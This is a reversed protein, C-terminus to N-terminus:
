APRKTVIHLGPTVARPTENATPEPVGRGIARIARDIHPDSVHTYRLVMELTKHGSITQITALDVGATVLNTIATHRMVHPTVKAPDLGARIVARRFPRDMRTRHGDVSLGARLAPFIWGDQDDDDRMGRERRLIDVLAPTMPQERSGAKAEQIFLRRRSFDVQDFRASLIESHRMATNLGFAVFLWCYTDQDSIAASLLADAEEDSLTIRRGEGEEDKAIKCPLAKIWKWHVGEHLMHILTTLERNITSVSAGERRRVKKYQLITFVAIKDLRQERFFPKLHLRLHMKKRPINKPPKRGEGRKLKEIYEGAATSFGLVTKRGRPLSLRGERAETRLREILQEAQTRTIGESDKGVVRHVREGDTMVNVSYRVDGNGMKEATVGHETIRKGGQLKRIAPRTLHTFRLPM